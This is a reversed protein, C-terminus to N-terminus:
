GSSMNAASDGVALHSACGTRAATRVGLRWARAAFAMAAPSLSSRMLASDAATAAGVLRQRFQDVGQEIVGGLDGAVPHQDDGVALAVSAAVPASVVASGSPTSSTTLLLRM